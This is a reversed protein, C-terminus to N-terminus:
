GEKRGLAETESVIAQMLEDFATEMDQEPVLKAKAIRTRVPLDTVAAISAGQALAKQAQEYYSLVLELLCFQKQISTYTDVEDFANQQLYDERISRAAELSLRDGASLADVGVLKVIEELEAEKQLLQMCATRLKTWNKSVRSNYWDALRDVYLSYSNLWNISPFHRRYALNADLGWFVKVIRLTAQSVPESIDGGPPSVAGM